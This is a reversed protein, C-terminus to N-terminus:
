KLAFEIPSFKQFLTKQQNKSTLIYLKLNKNEFFVVKFYCFFVYDFKFYIIVGDFYFLIMKHIKICANLKAANLNEGKWIYFLSSFLSVYIFSHM